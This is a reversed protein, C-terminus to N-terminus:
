VTNLFSDELETETEITTQKFFVNKQLISEYQSIYQPSTFPEMLQTGVYANLAARVLPNVTDPIVKGRGDHKVNLLGNILEVSNLKEYGGNDLYEKFLKVKTDLDLM